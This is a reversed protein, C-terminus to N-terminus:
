TRKKQKEIDEQIGLVRACNKELFQTLLREALEADQEFIFFPILSLIEGEIIKALLSKPINDYDIDIPLHSSQGNNNITIMGEQNYSISRTKTKNKFKETVCISKIPSSCDCRISINRVDDESYVKLLSIDETATDSSAMYRLYLDRFNIQSHRLNNKPSDEQVIIRQNYNTLDIRILRGDKNRIEKYTPELPRPTSQEKFIIVQESIFQSIISEALDKDNFLSFDITLLKQEIVQSTEEETILAIPKKNGNDESFYIVGEKNGFLIDKEADPSFLTLSIQQKFSAAPRRENSRKIGIFTNNETDVLVMSELEETTNIFANYKLGLSNSGEIETYNGNISSDAIITQNNSTLTISEPRWNQGKKTYAKGM